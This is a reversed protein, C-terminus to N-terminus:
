NVYIIRLHASNMSICCEPPDECRSLSLVVVNLIYSDNLQSYILKYIYDAHINTQMEYVSTVRVILLSKATGKSFFNNPYYTFNLAEDTTGTCFGQTRSM